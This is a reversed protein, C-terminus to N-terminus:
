FTDLDVFNFNYDRSRQNLEFIMIKIQDHTPRLGAKKLIIEEYNCNTIFRITDKGLYRSLNKLEGIFDMAKIAPKLTFDGIWIEFETVSVWIFSNRTEIRFNPTYSKIEKYSSDRMILSDEMSNPYTTSTREKCNNLVSQHHKKINIKRLIRSYLSPKIKIDYSNLAGMELFGNNIFGKYSGQNQNSPFTFIIAVENQKCNEITKKILTDFLGIKRHSKHIMADGIQAIKEGRSLIPYAGLAGVPQDEQFAIFGLNANSKSNLHSKRNFDIRKNDQNNGFVEKFLFEYHHFNSISIKEFRIM